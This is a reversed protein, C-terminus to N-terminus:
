SDGAAASHSAFLQAFKCHCVHTFAQSVLYPATTESYVDLIACAVTARVFSFVNPSIVVYRKSWLHLQHAGKDNGYKQIGSFHWLFQELKGLLLNASVVSYSSKALYLLFSLGECHFSFYFVSSSTPLCYWLTASLKALEVLATFVPWSPFPNNRIWRHHGSSRGLNHSLITGISISTRTHVPWTFGTGFVTYLILFVTFHRM